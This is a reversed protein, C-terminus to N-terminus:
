CADRWGGLAKNKIVVTRFVTNLVGLVQELSSCFWLNSSNELVSTSHVKDM